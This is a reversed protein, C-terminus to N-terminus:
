EDDSDKAAVIVKKAFVFYLDHDTIYDEDKDEDFDGNDELRAVIIALRGVSCVYRFGYKEVWKPNDQRAGLTNIADPWSKENCHEEIELTINRGVAKEIQELETAKFQYTSYLEGVDTVEVWDGMQFQSFALLPMCLVVFSLILKRMVQM